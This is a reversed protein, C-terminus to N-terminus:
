INIVRCDRFMQVVNLSSVNNGESDHNCKGIKTLINFSVQILSEIM